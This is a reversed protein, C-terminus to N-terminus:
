FLIACLITLIILLSGYFLITKENQHLEKDSILDKCWFLMNAWGLAGNIFMGFLILVIVMNMKNERKKNGIGITIKKTMIAMM